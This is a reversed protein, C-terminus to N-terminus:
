QIMITLLPFRLSSCHLINFRTAPLVKYGFKQQKGSVQLYECRFLHQVPLKFDYFIYHTQQRELAILAGIEQITNALRHM